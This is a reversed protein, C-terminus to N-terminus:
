EDAADSTYLLCGYPYHDGFLVIITDDLLNREQLGDILVGLANDLETMKSLYRKLELSYSTDEFKDLYKDGYESQSAYPQHTTVTTIYSMFKGDIDDLLKLYEEMLTVDSPWAGYVSSYEMNLSNVDYYNQSGM